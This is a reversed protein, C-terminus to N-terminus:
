KKASKNQREFRSLVYGLFFKKYIEVGFDIEFTIWFYNKFIYDVLNPLYM